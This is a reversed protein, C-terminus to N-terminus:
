CIFLFFSYSIVTHYHQHHVPVPMVSLNPVLIAEMCYRYLEPKFDILIYHVHISLQMLSRYYLFTPLYTPTTTNIMYVVHHQYVRIPASGIYTVYLHKQRVPRFQPSTDEGQCLLQAMGACPRPHPCTYPLLVVSQQMAVFEHFIDM